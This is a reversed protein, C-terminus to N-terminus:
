KRQKENRYYNEDCPIRGPRKFGSKINFDPNYKLETPLKRDDESVTNTYILNNFMINGNDTDM